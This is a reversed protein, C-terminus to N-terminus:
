QEFEMSSKNILVNKIRDNGCIINIFVKFDNCFEQMLVDLKPLIVCNNHSNEFQIPRPKGENKYHSEIINFNIMNVEKPVLMNEDEFVFWTFHTFLFEKPHKIFNCWIKIKGFITPMSDKIAKLEIDDAENKKGNYVSHLVVEMREQFLYLWFITTYFYFENSTDSKPIYSKYWDNDFQGLLRNLNEGISNDTFGECSILEDYIKCAITNGETNFMNVRLVGRCKRHTAKLYGQKRM